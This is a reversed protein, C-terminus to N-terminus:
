AMKKLRINPGLYYDDQVLGLLGTTLALWDQLQAVEEETLYRRLHEAHAIKMKIQTRYWQGDARNSSPFM